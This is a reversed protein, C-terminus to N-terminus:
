ILGILWEVCPVSYDWAHLPEYHGVYDIHLYGYLSGLSGIYEM